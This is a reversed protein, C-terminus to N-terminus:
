REKKRNRLITSTAVIALLGVLAVIGIPTLAPVEVRERTALAHITFPGGTGIVVDDDGDGDLDGVEVDILPTETEYLWIVDGDVGDFAAVGFEPFEGDGEFVFGAVVENKNDGDIDGIAIGERVFWNLEEYSWMEREGEPADIDIAYLSGVGGIGMSVVEDGPIGDLDGLEINTVVDGTEFGYIPDPNDPHDANTGNFALVIGDIGIVVEQDGDGDVDGIEVPIGPEELWWWMVGGSGNLVALGLEGMAAVEMGAEGDLDGVAVSMAPFDVPWDGPLANGSSGNVAYITFFEEPSCAVVDGIGDGDIDGIEMDFIIDEQLIEYFWLFNGDSDYATIGATDFDYNYGGVIVENGPNGDIDGIDIALGWVSENGWLLTGDPGSIAHVTGGGIDIAAVDDKGDGNLDGIAIDVVDTPYSWLEIPEPWQASVPMVFAFVSI